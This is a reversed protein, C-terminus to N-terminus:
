YHNIDPTPPKVMDYSPWWACNVDVNAAHAPVVIEKGVIRCKQTDIRVRATIYQCHWKGDVYIELKGGRIRFLGSTNDDIM